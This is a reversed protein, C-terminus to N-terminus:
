DLGIWSYSTPLFLKTKTHLFSQIQMQQTQLIVFLAIEIECPLAAVCKLHPPSTPLTIFVKEHLVCLLNVHQQHRCKSATVYYQM